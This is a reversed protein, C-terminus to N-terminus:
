FGLEIPHKLGEFIHSLEQASNILIGSFVMDKISANRTLPIGPIDTM